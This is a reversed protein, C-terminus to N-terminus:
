LPNKWYLFYQTDGPADRGPQWTCNMLSINYIVCSFNEIASGNMGGPIFTCHKSINTDPVEIIFSVGKHLPLYHQVPFRCLPSNVKKPVTKIDSNMIACKYKSFNKSSEWSLEMKRWNMKVNTIPSEQAESGMCQIDAHLPHFLVVCWWIVCLLGLTDFM